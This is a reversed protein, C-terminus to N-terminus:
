ESHMMQKIQEHNWPLFFVDTSDVSFGNMELGEWRYTTSFFILLFVVHNTVLLQESFQQINILSYHWITYSFAYVTIFFASFRFLFSVCGFPLLSVFLKEISIGYAKQSSFTKQTNISRQSYSPLSVDRSLVCYLLVAKLAELSVYSMIAHLSENKRNIINKM